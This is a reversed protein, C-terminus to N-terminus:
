ESPGVEQAYVEFAGDAWLPAPVGLLSGDELGRICRECLLLTRVRRLVRLPARDMSAPITNVRYIVARFAPNAECMCHQCAM